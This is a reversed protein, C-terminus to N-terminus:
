KDFNEFKNILIKILSSDFELKNLEVMSINYCLEM